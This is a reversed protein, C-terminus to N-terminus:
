NQFITIALTTTFLFQFYCADGDHFDNDTVFKGWGILFNHGNDNKRQICQVEWTTGEFVLTWRERARM